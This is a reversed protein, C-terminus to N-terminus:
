ASAFVSCRCRWAAAAASSAAASGRRRGNRASYPRTNWRSTRSNMGPRSASARSPATARRRAPGDGFKEVHVMVTLPMAALDAAGSAPEALQPSPSIAPADRAALGNISRIRLEPPASRGSRYITLLVDTAADLVRIFTFPQHLSLFGGEALSAAIMRGAGSPLADLRACPISFSDSPPIMAGRMEVEYLGPEFTLIQATSQLQGASAEAHRAAGRSAAGALREPAVPQNM